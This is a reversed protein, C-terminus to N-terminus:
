FTIKIRRGTALHAITISRDPHGQHIAMLGKGESDFEIRTGCSFPDVKPHLPGLDAPFVDLVEVQMQKYCNPSLTHIESCVSCLGFDLRQPLMQAAGDKRRLGIYYVSDNGCSKCRPFKETIAEARSEMYASEYNNKVDFMKLMDDYQM